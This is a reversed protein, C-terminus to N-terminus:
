HNYKQVTLELFLLNKVKLLGLEKLNVINLIERTDYFNYTITFLM